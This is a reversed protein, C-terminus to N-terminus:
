LLPRLARRCATKAYIEVPDIRCVAIEDFAPSEWTMPSLTMTKGLFDDAM